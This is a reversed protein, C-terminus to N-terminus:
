GEKSVFGQLREWVRLGAGLERMAESDMLLMTDSTWRPFRKFVFGEDFMWPEVLYRADVIRDVERFVTLTPRIEGSVKKVLYPFGGHFWEPVRTRVEVNPPLDAEVGMGNETSKRPLGLRDRLECEVALSFVAAEDREKKRLGVDLLATFSRESIMRRENFLFRAHDLADTSVEFIVNGFM